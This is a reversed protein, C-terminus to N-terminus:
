WNLSLVQRLFLCPLYCRLSVDITSRQSKMCVFACVFSLYLPNANEPRCGYQFALTMLPLIALMILAFVYISHWQSYLSLGM